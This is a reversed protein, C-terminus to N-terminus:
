ISHLSSHMWDTWSNQLVSAVGTRREASSILHPKYSATWHIQLMECRAINSSLAKPSSCEKAPGHQNHGSPNSMSLSPSFTWFSSPYIHCSTSVSLACFMTSLNLSITSRPQCMFGFCSVCLKKSKWGQVMRWKYRDHTCTRTYGPYLFASGHPFRYRGCPYPYNVPIPVYVPIALFVWPNGTDNVICAREAGIGRGPVWLHATHALLGQTQHQNLLLQSSLLHLFDCKASNWVKVMKLQSKLKWQLVNKLGGSIM